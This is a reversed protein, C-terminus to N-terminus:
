GHGVEVMSGIDLNLKELHESTPTINTTIQIPMKMASQIPKQQPPATVM